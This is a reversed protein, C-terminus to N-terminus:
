KALVTQYLTWAALTQADKIKNDRILQQFQPVSVPRLILDQEEADPENGVHRLGRAVFAHTKQDAHGIAIFIEGLYQLSDAEVGAEQRLEERAIEAPDVDNRELSGQRFELSHQGVPYRYQEILLLQEGDFPIVIASKYKEVVSYIGRVGGGREVEDERLTMWPNHYVVRSSLKRIGM